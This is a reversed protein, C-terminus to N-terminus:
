PRVDVRYTGALVFDVRFYHQPSFFFNLCDVLKKKKKEIPPRKVAVGNPRYSPLVMMQSGM